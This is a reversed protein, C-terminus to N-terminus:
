QHLLAEKLVKFIRSDGCQAVNFRMMHRAESRQSFVDGPATIVGEKACRQAVDKAIHGDPLRCWLLMGARPTFETTIGLAELRTMTRERAVSLRQHLHELYKRYGGDSLVEHIVLSSLHNAGFSTALKLDILAEIWEANTSIFGCRASASVTKTFSGIQIVKHGDDFAALRPVPSSQFDAFTDDEVILTKSREILKLVRHAKLPSLIAGTPNHIESNTIYLRPAHDTIATTFADLDPGDSEYPVGVVNVQHARLLAHFNFYCPDDVLVTDNPRLFLRCTLDLAETASDTLMIHSAAQMIGRNAMRRAILQRLPLLGLPSAYDVLEAQYQRAIKRLARQIGETFMWDVPLWGCGPRLTSPSEELSQRSVWLPDIDRQDPPTLSSLELPAMHDCVYFGSGRRAELTGKACLREYAENVTSVSVDLAKAQARISPLRSGPVYQQGAIRDTVYQMVQEIRTM